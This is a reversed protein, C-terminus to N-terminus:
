TKPESPEDSSNIPQNDPLPLAPVTEPDTQDTKVSGSAEIIAGSGAGKRRPLPLPIRRVVDMAQKQFKQWQERTPRLNTRYYHEAAMGMAMTGAYAIGVKPITGAAFPLFSTAGRALSRWLFGAGVVPVMEQVIAFQDHLDRGHMAGLKYIMMMQNKTLVILDAGASAIGGVIPVVSPINSILAFQANAMSTDNIVVRAAAPRFLPFARGFAPARDPVARVIAHRLNDIASDASSELDTYSHVVSAGTALLQRDRLTRAVGTETPDSVIIADFRELDAPPANLERTTIALEGSEGALRLGLERADATTPALVLLRPFNEAQERVEDFSIERLVSVLNRVGMLSGGRQDLSKMM